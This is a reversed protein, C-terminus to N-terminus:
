QSCPLIESSFSKRNDILCSITFFFSITVKSDNWSVGLHNLVVQLLWSVKLIKNVDKSQDCIISDDNEPIQETLEDIEEDEIEASSLLHHSFHSFLCCFKLSRRGRSTISALVM